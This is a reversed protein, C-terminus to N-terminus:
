SWSRGFLEEGNKGLMLVAAKNLTANTKPSYSTQKDLAIIVQKGCSAYLEIIKEIAEDSIQKLIISDHVLIPLRTLKLVALDYVVLGKYAIGTGSDDPTFFTYNNDTFALTPANSTGGYIEDNIKSMEKNLQTSVLAFQEQKIAKLREADADRDKQLQEFKVYADNERQMREKEHLLETHRTLIAKSLNPNQILEQLQSEYTHIIQDYEALEKKIKLRESKLEAKFISSITKHFKEIDELHAIAVNPFFKRLDTFNNVTASFTYNGNEDLMDCRSQARSKARRARSLLKKIYIAQEFAEADMDLLGHELRSSLEELQESLYEIDKENKKYTTKTIKSVFQLTQAKRYIALDEKSKDAAIKMEKLSIYQDFLKLLAYCATEASETTPTSLPRHENCNNKGYVRIYRGVANRFSLEPLTLSYKTALWNCYDELTLAEIKNYADDCKWVTHQQISNRCFKFIKGDFVFSFFIDHSKVNNTIDPTNAYTSGGFAYDVILLFTSKGISNDGTNTGLVVNLGDSFHIQKQHFQECYIEYLM